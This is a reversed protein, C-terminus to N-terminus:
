SFLLHTCLTLIFAICLTCHVLKSDVPGMDVPGQGGTGAGKGYAKKVM